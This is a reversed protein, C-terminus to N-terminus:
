PVSVHSIEGLPQGGVKETAESLPGNEKIGQWFEYVQGPASARAVRKVTEGAKKLTAPDRLARGARRAASENPEARQAGVASAQEERLQTLAAEAEALINNIDPAEGAAMQGQVQQAVGRKLQGVPMGTSKSMADWEDQGVMRDLYDAVDMALEGPDQPKPLRAKAYEAGAKFRERDMAAVDGAEQRGTREEAIEMQTFAQTGQSLVSGLTSLQQNNSQVLGSVMEQLIKNGPAAGLVRMYLENKTQALGVADQFALQSTAAYEEQSVSEPNSQMKLLLKQFSQASARPGSSLEEIQSNVSQLTEKAVRLNERDQMMTRVEMLSKRVRLGAEFGQALELGWTEAM